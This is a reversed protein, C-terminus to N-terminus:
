ERLAELLRECIDIAGMCMGFASTNDKIQKMNLKERQIEDELWAEIEFQNM